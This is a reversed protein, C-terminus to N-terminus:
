FAFQAEPVFGPLYPASTDFVIREGIVDGTKHFVSAHGIPGKQLICVLRGDNALQETWSKSVEHVAGNVFIVNFPGHESAGAKLGGAVVATNDANVGVLLETARTVAEESTELGVVMDALQAMIATSYGRGCALDLVVDNPGIGAAQIMKALDRPRLMVRGDDLEIHADGYALAMKAKPVFNERPIKRFASLLAIDTVDNTRIQSEVMHERAATYNYM